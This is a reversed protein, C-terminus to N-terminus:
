DKGGDVGDKEAREALEKLVVEIMWYGAFTLIFVSAASAIKMDERWFLSGVLCAVLSTCVSLTYDLVKAPTVNM